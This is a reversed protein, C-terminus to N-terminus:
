YGQNQLTGGRMFNRGQNQYGLHQLSGGRMFNRGQNQYGQRQLIGGRMFNRSQSLDNLRPPGFSRQPYPRIGSM